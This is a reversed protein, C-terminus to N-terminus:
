VCKESIWDNSKKKKDRKKHHPVEGLCPGKSEGRPLLGYICSGVQWFWTDLLRFSSWHPDFGTHRPRCNM